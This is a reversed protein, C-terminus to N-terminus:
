PRWYYGYTQGIIFLPHATVAYASAGILATLPAWRSLLRGFPKPRHQSHSSRVVAPSTSPTISVPRTM